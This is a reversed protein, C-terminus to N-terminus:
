LDAFKDEDWFRIEMITKDGQLRIENSFKPDLCLVKRWVGQDM